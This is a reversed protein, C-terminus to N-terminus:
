GAAGPRNQLIGEIKQMVEDTLKPLSEPSKLNEELQSVKSAGLIVTSVNKNKLCWCLALHTLPIGIEKALADLKKVKEVKQLDAVTREQLWAMTKIRSQEDM